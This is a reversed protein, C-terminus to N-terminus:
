FLPLNGLLIPPNRCQLPVALMTKSGTIFYDHLDLSVLRAICGYKIGVILLNTSCGPHLTLM